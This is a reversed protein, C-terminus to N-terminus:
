RREKLQKPGDTPNSRPTIAIEFSKGDLTTFRVGAAEGDNTLLRPEGVLVYKDGERVLLKMTLMIGNDKITPVIEFKLADGLTLDNVDPVLTGEEV